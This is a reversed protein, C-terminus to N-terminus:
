VGPTTKERVEEDVEQVVYQIGYPPPFFSSIKGPFIFRMVERLDKINNVKDWNVQYTKLQPEYGAM